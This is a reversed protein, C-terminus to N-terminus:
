YVFWDNLRGPPLFINDMIIHGILVDAKFRDPKLITQSFHNVRNLSVDWSLRPATLKFGGSKNENYLLYM